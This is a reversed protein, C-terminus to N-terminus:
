SWLEALPNHKPWHKEVRRVRVVLNRPEECLGLRQCADQFSEMVHVTVNQGAVFETYGRIERPRVETLQRMPFAALPGHPFRPRIM